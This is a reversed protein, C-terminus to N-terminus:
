TTTFDEFFNPNHSVLQYLHELVLQNLGAVKAQLTNVQTSLRSKAHCAAHVAVKQLPLARLRQAWMEDCAALEFRDCV